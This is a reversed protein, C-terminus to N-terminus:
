DADRLLKEVAPLRADIQRADEYASAVESLARTLDLVYQGYYDADEDSLDGTTLKAEHRKIPNPYLIPRGEKKEKRSQGRYLDCPTREDFYYKLKGAAQYLKKLEDSM